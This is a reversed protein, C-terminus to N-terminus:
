CNVLNCMGPTPYLINLHYYKISFCWVPWLSHEKNKYITTAVAAVVVVVLVDAVVVNLYLIIFYSSLSLSILRAYLWCGDSNSSGAPYGSM